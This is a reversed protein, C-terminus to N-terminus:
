AARRLERSLGLSAVIQRVRERTIGFDTGIAQLTEGALWRLGIFANRENVLGGAAIATIRQRPANRGQRWAEDTGSKLRPFNGVPLVSIDFRGSRVADIDSELLPNAAFWEHHLRHEKHREHFRREVQMGFAHRPEKPPVEIELIAVIELPIPSWPLYTLLRSAPYSSHGIKVPGDQEVPRIFYVCNHGGAHIM